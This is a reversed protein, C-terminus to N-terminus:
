GDIYPTVRHKTDANIRNNHHVTNIEINNYLISFYLQM